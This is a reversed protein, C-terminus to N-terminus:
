KNFQRMFDWYNPYVIWSRKAVALAIQSSDMRYLILHGTEPSIEHRYCAHKKYLFPFFRHQVAITYSKQALDTYTNEKEDNEKHNVKEALDM